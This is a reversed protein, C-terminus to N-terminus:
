LEACANAKLLDSASLPPDSPQSLSGDAHQYALNLIEFGKKPPSSNRFPLIYQIPTDTELFARVIAFYVDADADPSCAIANTRLSAPNSSPKVTVALGEADMAQRLANGDATKTYYVVARTPQNESRERLAQASPEALALGAGGHSVSLMMGTIGLTIAKNM